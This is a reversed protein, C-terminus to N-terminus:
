KNNEIAKQLFAKMHQVQEPLDLDFGVSVISIAHRLNDKKKYESQLSQGCQNLDITLKSIEKEQEEVKKVLLDYNSTRAKYHCLNEYNSILRQILDSTSEIFFFDDVARNLLAILDKEEEVTLPKVKDRDPHNLQIM